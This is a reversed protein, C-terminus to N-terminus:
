ESLHVITELVAFVIDKNDLAMRQLLVDVM